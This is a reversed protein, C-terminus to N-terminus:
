AHTHIHTYITLHTHANLPTFADYILLGCVLFHTWWLDAACLWSKSTLNPICRCPLQVTISQQHAPFWPCNVHNRGGTLVTNALLCFWAMNPVDADWPHVGLYPQAFRFTENSSLLGLSNVRHWQGVSSFMLPFFQHQELEGKRAEGGNPYSCGAEGWRGWGM